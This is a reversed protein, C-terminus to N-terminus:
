IRHQDEAINALHSFYSFARIIQIANDGSLSNLTTELEGRAREDENRHFRISTQRIHEVTGYVAEGEQNRVTDGLLRGLLRIDDRLPMDKDLLEVQNMASIGEDRRSARM